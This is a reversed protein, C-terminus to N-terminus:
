ANKSKKMTIVIFIAVILSGLGVILWMFLNSNDTTEVVEPLETPEITPVTEMKDVGVIAFLSLYDTEFEIENGILTCKIESQVNDDTVHIIKFNEYKEIQEHTLTLKVKVFGNPQINEKNDMLSINYMSLLVDKDTLVVSNTSDINAIDIWEVVLSINEGLSNPLTVTINNEKNVLIQIIEPTKTPKVTPKVTPEVTPVPTPKVTPTPTVDPTPVPTPKVTPTPTVVPTPVPTPEPTPVPTPPLPAAEVVISYESSIESGEATAIIIVEGANIGTIKGDEVSAVNADSTSWTIKQNTANYPLVKALLTASNGVTIKDVGSIEVSTAPVVEVEQETVTMTHTAFINEDVISTAIITIEGVSVGTVLGNEDVTAIELNDSTWIIGRNTADTPLAYGVLGVTTGIQVANAGAVVVSTPLIDKVKVVNIVHNAKIETDKITATITVEGEIIGTVLGSNDVTAITEDSTSWIVETNEPTVNAILTTIEGENINEVGTISVTPIVQDEKVVKMVHNAKIDTDKITATIIVEGEIIGTVLGSNGVTAITEDSTSWIVETNEPTVDAVLTTNNGIKVIKDGTISVSMSNAVVFKVALTASTEMNTSITINESYDGVLLSDKPKITFTCTEGIELKTKSLNSIIYNESVPNTLEVVQNGTNEVTITQEMLAAYDIIVSGFDASQPNLSITYDPIFEKFVANVTVNNAPMVFTNEKTLEIATNDSSLVVSISDLVYGQDPTATVTVIDGEKAKDLPSTTVKGGVISEDISINSTKFEGVQVEYATVITNLSRSTATIEVIGDKIGTVVGQQDVTAISDDSSTWIVSKNYAGAPLVEANLKITNAASVLDPGTVSISMPELDAEPKSTQSKEITIIEYISVPENGWSLKIEAINGYDYTDVVTFANTFQKVLKWEKSNVERISVEILSFKDKLINIVGLDMNESIRYTVSGQTKGEMNPKFETVMNGDLINNVTYNAGVEVVDSEIVPNHVSSVYEGANIFLENMATFRHLYPATILVRIYRSNTPTIEGKVSVLNPGYPGYINNGSADVSDLAKVSSENSNEIGDGITIVDTWNGDLSNSVQIKADRLYNIQSDNVVLELDKIVRSSGLDYILVEDKSTFDNYAVTTNVDGDFLQYNTGTTRSDTSAYSPNIGITSSELDPGSLTYLSVNLSNLKFMVKSKSTNKLVVYRALKDIQQASVVEHLEFMNAGAFLKVGTANLVDLDIKNIQKITQLDIGVYENEALTVNGSSMSINDQSITGVPSSIIANDSKLIYKNDFEIATTVQFEYVNTWKPISKGNVLRVYQATIDLGDITFNSENISDAIKTYTINDLSYELTSNVMRDCEETIGKEQVINIETIRKASGLNVGVYSGKQTTDKYANDSNRNDSLTIKSNLNNDTLNSLNTGHLELESSIFPGKPLGADAKIVSIEYVQLWNSSNAGNKLRIYKANIDLNSKTYESTNIGKEIEIYTGEVGTLSYELIADKMKDNVGQKIYIEKINTPEALEVGVYAGAVPENNTWYLTSLDKDIMNEVAGSHLGLDDSKFAVRGDPEPEPEPQAPMENIFIEYIGLWMDGKGETAVLRIGKAKLGLNLLEIYEKNNVTEYSDAYIAGEIDLWNTGDVTYQVKSQKFNNKTNARKIMISEIPVIRNYMVGVYDGVVTSSPSKFAAGTTIDNDIMAEIGGSPADNRSTIAREIIISPDFIEQVKQSVSALLERTFPMIHQVGIEANQWHNLYWFKHGLSKNYSDQADTYLTMIESNSMNTQIGELADLLYLNANMVDVWADLWYIMQGTLRKHGSEKYINASNLLMTFEIRLKEIDAIDVELGNKLKEKFPTLTEKLVVSEQLEQVRSDMNQNIMHKSLERLATSADTEEYTGHDIYKFSDEWAEDAKEKSGWINWCYEANGFIAIKSPESQQMPNLMIGQISNPDVNPHLFESYGGMILHQKSNDTCPWNIWLYPERSTHKKFTETFVTSAEGWIRGGTMIIPATEVLNEETESSSHTGGLIKLQDSSGNGMYDNPCFPIDTKLGPYKNQMTESSLWETLDNVFTIYNQSDSNPVGADDALISIQRVGVEIVQELKDKAIQLDEQYNAETNFRVANHMFTHLSYVYRCKSEEGTRALYAIDVLEEETYPTRWASNHKPDDKPAYFYINLKHEGGFRMLEARDENSWPNGYYGEIFGRFAIDAYDNMTLHRVTKGSQTLIHQLSTLAYFAADTDKGLVFIGDANIELIYSDGKEFLAVDDILNNDKFYKDVALGSNYIGVKIEKTGGNPVLTVNAKSFATQARQKTYKDIGDEYTATMTQSLNLIGADYKIEQPTPYIEYEILSSNMSGVGGNKGTLDQTTDNALVTVNSTLITFSLAMLILTKFTKIM